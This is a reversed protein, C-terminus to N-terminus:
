SHSVQRVQHNSGAEDLGVRRRVHLDPAPLRVAGDGDEGHAVADDGRLYIFVLFIQM